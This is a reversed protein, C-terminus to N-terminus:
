KDVNVLSGYSNVISISSKRELLDILIFDEIKNCQDFNMYEISKLYKEPVDFLIEGYINPCRTITLYRLKNCQTVIENM